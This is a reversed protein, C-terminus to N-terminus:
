MDDMDFQVVMVSVNDTSKRDIAERVLEGAVQDANLGRDFGDQAINIVSAEDVFDWLGDCALVVFEDMDTLVLENVDPTSVIVSKMVHDGFARSVNLVGNVRACMVFGGAKEVRNREPEDVPRHDVSLRVPRGARSLVARADGCNATTLVRGVRDVRRVFCTVATAGVRLCRKARLASDMKEYARHFAARVQKSHVALGPADVRNLLEELFFRHLLKGVLSAASAGGHGDYVGLFLGRVDSFQAICTDDEMTRRHLYNPDHREGVHAAVHQALVTM